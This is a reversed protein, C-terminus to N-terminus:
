KTVDRYVQGREYVQELIMWDDVEIPNGQPFPPVSGAGIIMLVSAESYYAKFLQGIFSSFLKINVLKCANISILKQTADMEIFEKEYKEECVKDLMQIFDILISELHNHKLFSYFDIFSASPMGLDSDGPLIADIVVKWPTM